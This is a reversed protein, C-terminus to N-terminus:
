ASTDHCELILNVEWCIEGFAKDELESRHFIKSASTLILVDIADDFYLLPQVAFEIEEIFALFVAVDGHNSPCDLLFTRSKLFSFM